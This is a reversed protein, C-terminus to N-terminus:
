GKSWARIQAIEEVDINLSELFKQHEDPRSQEFQCHWNHMDEDSLGANRMIEVWGEKTIMQQSLLEPREMFQVIAKQQLRLQQIEQELANFQELLIHEQTESSAKDRDLLSALQAVPLGFSRYALIKELREVEKAGYWRYGNDSRHTPLLLGEREYYLVSTRSIGCKKALQSVTIMQRSQHRASLGVKFGVGTSPDIPWDMM